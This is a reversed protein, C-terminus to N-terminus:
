VNFHIRTIHLRLFLGTQPPRSIPAQWGDGCIVQKLKIESVHNNKFMSSVFIYNQHETKRQLARPRAYASAGSAQGHGPSVGFAGPVVWLGLVHQPVVQQMAWLTPRRGGTVALPGTHVSEVWPGLTAGSFVHKLLDTFTITALVKQTGGHALSRAEWKAKCCAFLTSVMIMGLASVLFDLAIQLHLHQCTSSLPLYELITRM